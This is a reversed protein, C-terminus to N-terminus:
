FSSINRHWVIHSQRHWGPVNSFPQSGFVIQYLIIGLAWIDVKKTYKVGDSQATAEKNIEGDEIVYGAYVKLYIRLKSCKPIPQCNWCIIIYKYRQAWTSRLERYIKGRFINTARSWSWPWGSTSWSSNGRWWSFTVLSSTPMFSTSITFTELCFMVDNAILSDPRWWRVALLMQEWYFRLRSPTLKGSEKLKLLIQLFVKSFSWSVQTSSRNYTWTEKRWSYMCGITTKQRTSSMNLLRWWEM